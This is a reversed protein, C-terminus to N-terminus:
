KNNKRLLSMYDLVKERIIQLHSIHNDVVQKNSQSSFNLDDISGILNNIESILRKSIAIKLSSVDNDSLDVLDATRAILKGYSCTILLAKKTKEISSIESIFFVNWSAALKELEIYFSAGERKKWDESYFIEEDTYTEQFSNIDKKALWESTQSVLAPNNQLRKLIIDEEGPLDIFRPITKIYEAIREDDKRLEKEWNYENWDKYFKDM